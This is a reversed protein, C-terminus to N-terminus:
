GYGLRESLQFSSAYWDFSEKRAARRCASGDQHSPTLSQSNASSLSELKLIVGSNCSTIVLDVLFWILTRLLVCVLLKNLLNNFDTVHPYANLLNRTTVRVIGASEFFKHWSVKNTYILSRTSYSELIQILGFNHLPNSPSYYLSRVSCCLSVSSSIVM